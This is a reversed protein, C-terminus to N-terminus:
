EAFQRYHDLNKLAYKALRIDQEIQEKLSAVGKFSREPRILCLLEVQLNQGYIDQNFDFIHVEITPTNSSNITPKIGLNAIAYYSTESLSVRALYVGMLPTFYDAFNTDLNATPTALASTALSLGKIVKGEFSVPRGLMSNALIIRGAHLHNKITSTSIIQKKFTKLDVAHYNFSKVYQRFTHEDGKRDKGFKFNAGTVITQPAFKPILFTEIFDQASVKAFNTDFEIVYVFDLKLKALLELKKELSNIYKYQKSQSLIQVPHPNFTILGSKTQHKQALEHCTQIIKQHGLHLADFNGIAIAAGKFEDTIYNLGKFVQMKDGRTLLMM